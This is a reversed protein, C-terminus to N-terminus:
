FEIDIPDSVWEKILEVALNLRNKLLEFDEITPEFRHVVLRKNEPFRPDYSCIVGKKKEACFCEGIVQWKYDNFLVDSDLFYLLHQKSTPCKAEWTEGTSEIIGDPSAAIYDSYIFLGCERVTTMEHLEFARRANEENDIGWQMQKTTYTEEREGTLAQAAIERLITLQGASWQDPKQKKTPMLKQFKSGTIRHLRVAFWEVSLQEVKLESM